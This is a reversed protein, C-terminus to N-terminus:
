QSLCLLQWPHLSLYLDIQAIQEEILAKKEKLIQSADFTAQRRAERHYQYQRGLWGLAGGLIASIPIIWALIGSDM